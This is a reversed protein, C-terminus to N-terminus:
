RTGIAPSSSGMAAVSRHDDVLFVVSLHIWSVTRVSGAVPLAFAEIMFIRVAEAEGVVAIHGVASDPGVCYPKGILSGVSGPLYEEIRGVKDVVKGILARFSRFPSIRSEQLLSLLTLLINAFLVYLIYFCINKCEKYLNNYILLIYM